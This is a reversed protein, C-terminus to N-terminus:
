GVRSSGIGTGAVARRPAPDPASRDAQERRALVVYGGLALGAFV